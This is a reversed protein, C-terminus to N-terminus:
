IGSSRAEVLNSITYDAVVWTGV